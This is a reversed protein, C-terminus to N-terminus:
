DGAPTNAAAPRTWDEVPLGPVRTFDRVNATVVTAGALRAIAAIRLDNKRVNLKMKHLLDFEEMAAETFPVLQATAYYRVTETLRAYANALRPRTLPRRLMSYWGDLQEEVTIITVFKQPPLVAAARATVLPHGNRLHSVTDTDLVYLTM